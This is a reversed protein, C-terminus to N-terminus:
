LNEEGVDGGAIYICTYLYMCVAYMQIYLPAALEVPRRRIKKGAWYKCTHTVSKAM